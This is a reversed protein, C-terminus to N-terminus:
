RATLLRTKEEKLYRIMCHLCSYATNPKRGFRTPDDNVPYHLYAVHLLILAGDTPGAPILDLFFPSTMDNSNNMNAESAKKVHMCM